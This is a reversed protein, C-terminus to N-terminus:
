GGAKAVISKRKPIITGIIRLFDAETYWPQTDFSKVLQKELNPFPIIGDMAGATQARLYFGQLNISPVTLLSAEFTAEGTDFIKSVDSARLLAAVEPGYFTAAIKWAGSPPRQAVWAMVLSREANGVFFRWGASVAAARIGRGKVVDGIGLVYVPLANYDPIESPNKPIRFGLEEASPIKVPPGASGQSVVYGSSGCDTDSLFAPLQELLAAIASFPPCPRVIPM